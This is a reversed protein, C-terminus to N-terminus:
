ARARKRTSDTLHLSLQTVRERIDAVAADFAADTNVRAPDPVSWHIRPNNVNALEENVADCVSVLVDDPKLVTDLQQPVDRVLTLGARKAATRTRPNIRLAPHTGASTSPLDALSHWLSEALISRASNETCVFVVRRAGFTAVPLVLEHLAAEVLHVYTRRRDGQSQSRHVLGADELVRLHHALLNGSVELAAALAQPSLDQVQLLEVIALRAPDGLAAFARAREARAAAIADDSPSFLDTNM